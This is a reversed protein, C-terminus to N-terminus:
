LYKEYIKEMEIISNSLEFKKSTEIAHLSCEEYHSRDMYLKFMYDVFQKISNQQFLYGNKSHIVIEKHGRDDSAVIPLGCMMEEILNLGLGEQRSSSVGIDSMKFVEDIDNRFGLFHVVDSLKLKLVKDKCIQQLEGRGAFLIKLNPIKEKLTLAADIIFDHNKRYIFEAAYVLIFDNPQFGNKTRLDSKEQSSVPFFRKQNVGVGPIKYVRTHKTEKRKAILYDEQNITIIADADKALLMEVPYYTLWNILPSDKYFHFGHATYLVKTGNLRSKKSALRTVVSAMPTHCHVMTFNEKELISKLSKYAKFHGLHFPSRIFPVDYRVNTFPLIEEGSCAVHTEYGHDQFWKLYPLHFRLIHKAISATFLVKKTM